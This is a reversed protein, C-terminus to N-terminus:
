RLQTEYMEGAEGRVIRGAETGLAVADAAAGDRATAWHRKGDPTFLMARLQMRANAITALAAVPTRCTGDLAALFAREANICATTEACALPALLACIDADDARCEVGLAGQAVAPLMEDTSIIDKAHSEMGIRRLGAIALLTADCEGEALKRIRTNANGRLPVIALDPRRMLVQAARRLSSTGVRSGYPLQALSDAHPSLFADRPDDRPLTCAITLGEPLWTEVDKMSHVAIDIRQEILAQELEKTFLGKGGIAALPRDLVKDAVTTVAVVEMAGPAALQPHAAALRDRVLHTQALAMPSARTGIRLPTTM